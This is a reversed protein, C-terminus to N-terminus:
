DGIASPTAIGPVGNRRKRERRVDLVASVTVIVAFIPLVRIASGVDTRFGLVASGLNLAGFVTACILFKTVAKRALAM